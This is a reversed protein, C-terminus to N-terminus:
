RTTTTRATCRSTGVPVPAHRADLGHEVQLRVRPRRPPDPAHRGALRDVGRGGDGRGPTAQLRDREAGAPVAGRGPEGPRRVPQAAVAGRRPLLGPVADLRGRGRAPRRPPVGRDLVARQRGPLQAGRQPRLRVRPHGLGAARRPAPGRARVAASGDFRALAWSDRPFHAPVWDVLVGIGRQHLQDVFYRFDDPSGFRSTPAYYRHGPLGVLRRLPARGGAAAGRPHLRDRDRLRGTAGGTRPLRPRAAVLRPAGRLREDARRGAPDGRPPGAVGRRGVQVDVADRDVRDGAAGRDRVGDPRGERALEGDPASSASSTAPVRASAPCSCSGCGRRASRACRTRRARGLRQLRRDRPRRAREAGVGRVVDGRRGREADRVLPRARRAGGLAARPARRRDPAPRARRGHAALPVPRRHHRHARRLRGGAPLRGPAGAARRRVARRGGAGAPVPARGRAGDGGQRRAAAGPGGPRGVAHVGLVSHPDHHSGALLRDIDAAPPAAAPLGEPVANVTDDRETPSGPSRRWRCPWGTRGTRTSTPSRTSRRTWNSRVCCSPAGRAPRAAAAAYGECFAARNRRAWELAREALAPDEPQGVLMQLAAYDFSRLMGAVDRLPSRLAAAGRGARGARGRLRDAALRGVTRLVQGLHLDGHIHQMAVSGLPLTACGSSRRGCRPAYAALEPVRGAVADLRDLM